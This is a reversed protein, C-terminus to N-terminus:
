YAILEIGVKANKPLNSLEITTRAPASEMFYEGYVKNMEAFDNIDKLFVTTKLVNDLSSGNEELISKLNEIVLTTQESISGEPINGNRDIPIQCSTFILNSYKVAVSYPGIPLPAKVSTLIKKM